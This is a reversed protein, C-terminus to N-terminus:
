KRKSPHTAKPDPVWGKGFSDKGAVEPAPRAEMLRDVEEREMGLKRMITEVSEGASRMSRVIESMRLIAHQGRARNHRVTSARADPESTEDLIVVPVKGRGLDLVDAFQRSLTWRHFGDVIELREGVRRAVIPQTWGDALLSERLLAREAPFVNNPNYDNAELEQPDLWQLRELPNERTM